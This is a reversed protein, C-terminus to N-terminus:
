RLLSFNAGLYDEYFSLSEKLLFSEGHGPCVITEEPFEDFVRMVSEKYDDKSSGLRKMLVPKTNLLLTDGTFLTNEINICMGGPSHGKTEIFRINTGNWNLVCDLDEVVYDVRNVSYEEESNFYFKNFYNSPQMVKDKCSQTCIVKAETKEILENVGWCHDFHEHTLLIYDVTLGKEKIYTMLEPEEKSGPDIVLCHEGDVIIYTNSPVPTNIHRHISFM